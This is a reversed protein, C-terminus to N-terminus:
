LKSSAIFARIPAEARCWSWCMAKVKHCFCPCSNRHFTDQACSGQPCHREMRFVWSLGLQDPSVSFTSLCLPSEFNQFFMLFMLVECSDKKMFHLYKNSWFYHGIHSGLLFIHIGSLIPGSCFYLPIIPVVHTCVTLRITLGRWLIAKVKWVQENILYIKVSDM